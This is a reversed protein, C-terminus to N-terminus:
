FTQGPTLTRKTHFFLGLLTVIAAPVKHLSVWRLIGNESSKKPKPLIWSLSARVTAKLKVLVPHKYERCNCPCPILPAWNGLTSYTIPGLPQGLVPMEIDAAFGARNFRSKTCVPLYVTTGTPPLHAPISKLNACRRFKGCELFRDVANKDRFDTDPVKAGDPNFKPM